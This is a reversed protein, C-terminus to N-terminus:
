RALGLLLLGDLSAVKLPGGDEAREFVISRVHLRYRASKVSGEEVIPEAPRAAEEDDGATAYRELRALPIRVIENGRQVVVLSLGDLRARWGDKEGDDAGQCREAGWCNLSPLVVDFGTSEVANPLPAWVSLREDTRDDRDWPRYHLGLALVLDRPSAATALGKCGSCADNAPRWALVRGFEDRSELYFLAASLEHEDKRPVSTTARALVGHALRHHKILLARARATQSRVSLSRASLPGVATVLAIVALVLPIVALNRGRSLVFYPAVIALFAAIAYLICREETLGYETTRRGVALFLLLVLPLLAVFFGRCYARVLRSGTLRGPELLLVTLLGVAAFVIIPASVWGRPWEHAVIIKVSYVYLIALYLGSLPLLIHRALVDLARPTPFRGELRDWDRPVGALVYATNFVGLVAFWVQPYLSEPVKVDFLHEVAALAFCLGAVLVHTLLLALATRSFLMLNFARFDGRPAGGALPALALLGHASVIFLSFRIFTWEDNRGGLSAFCGALAGAAVLSLLARGPAGREGALAAALFLAVGLWSTLLVRVLLDEAGGHLHKSALAVGAAAGVVGAVLPLPFRRVGAGVQGAFGAARGAFGSM